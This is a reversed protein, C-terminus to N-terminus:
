LGSSIGQESGDSSSNERELSVLVAESVQALMPPGSLSMMLLTFEAAFVLACRSSDLSCELFSMNVPSDM